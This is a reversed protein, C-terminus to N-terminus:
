NSPKLFRNLYNRTNLREIELRGIVLSLLMTIITVFSFSYVWTTMSISPIAMLAFIYGAIIQVTLVGCDIIQGWLRNYKSNYRDFAWNDNILTSKLKQREM